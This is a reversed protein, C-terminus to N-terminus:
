HNTSLMSYSNSINCISYLICFLLQVVGSVTTPAALLLMMESALAPAALLLMMESAHAPAALLLMM